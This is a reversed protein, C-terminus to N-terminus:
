KIVECSWESDLEITCRAISIFRTDDVIFNGVHVPRIEIAEDEITRHYYESTWNQLVAVKIGYNGSIINPNKFLATVRYKQGKKLPPIKIEKKDLNSELVINYDRANMIGIGVIPKEIDINTKFDYFIKIGEGYSVTKIVENKSNLLGAGIYEVEGSEQSFGDERIRKLEIDRSKLSLKRTLSSYEAVVRETEGSAIIEGHHLLITRDCMHRIKGMDHTVIIVAKANQRLQSIKRMCKNKFNLDGVALIEDVLLIDPECHIAIAFGLRVKMGSSYASIPAELFDGIDAFDIISQLKKNIEKKSMGLIIGNLFINERGTLHPHFGAGVAILAGIRGAIRIEGNDPPFINTLLRLLTTKGSGNPGIIGLTEGKRLEFNLDKLAWFEAKKLKSTKSKIGFMNKGLDIMGYFMSRKLNRCFKKSLNRVSVVVEGAESKVNKVGPIDNKNKTM